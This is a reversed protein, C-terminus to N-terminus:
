LSTFSGVDNVIQVIQSKVTWIIKMQIMKSRQALVSYYEKVMLFVVFTLSDLLFSLVGVNIRRFYASLNDTVDHIPEM